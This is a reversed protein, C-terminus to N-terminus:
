PVFLHFLNGSSRGDRMFYDEAAKLHAINETHGDVFFANTRAAHRGTFAEVECPTSPLSSRVILSDYRPVSFWSSQQLYATGTLRFRYPVDGGFVKSSPNRIESSKKGQNYGQMTYSYVIQRYLWMRHSEYKESPNEPCIMVKWSPHAALAPRTQSISPPSSVQNASLLTNYGPVLLDVVAPFSNYNGQGVETVPLVSDMDLVYLQFWVAHQRLNSDCLRAMALQRASRLSPLLLSALIAIIATVVLLEILTFSVYRLSHRGKRGSVPLIRRNGRRRFLLREPSRRKEKESSGCLKM